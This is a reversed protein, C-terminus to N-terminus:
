SAKRRKSKKPYEVYAKPISTDGTGKSIELVFKAVPQATYIEAAKKLDADPMIGIAGQVLESWFERADSTVLKGQRQEM